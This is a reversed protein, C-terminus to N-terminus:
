DKIPTLIIDTNKNDHVSYSWFSKQVHRKQMAIKTWAIKTEIRLVTGLIETNDPAYIPPQHLWDQKGIRYKPIDGLSPKIM